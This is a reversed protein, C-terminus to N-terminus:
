GALTSGGFGVPLTENRMQAMLASHDPDHVCLWDHAICTVVFSALSVALLISQRRRSITLM